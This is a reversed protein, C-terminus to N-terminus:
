SRFQDRADLEALIQIVEDDSVQNFHTYHAGVAMFPSPCELCVVDDALDRLSALSEEPAVPLAVILREAGGARLFKLAARLTAGTALGDDVVIVTKGCVNVAPRDGAYLQKRRELEPLVKRALASVQTKDLGLPEAVEPNVILNMDEGESIAGVALEPYGPATVKRVLVIDLPLGFALAIERAVPLGGRPLAIVVTSTRDFDPLNETLMRGAQRRDAFM